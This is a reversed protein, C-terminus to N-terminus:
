GSDPGTPSSRSALVSLRADLAREALRLAEAETTAMGVPVGGSEDGRPPLTVIEVGRAVVEAKAGGDPDVAVVDVRDGVRLNSLADGDALRVTALVSGSPFGSMRDADVVRRDTIVEGRRMPGAVTRGVVGDVDHVGHEPAAQEPLKRRLVDDSALVAGSALDHAAVVVTRGPPESRLAGLALLVALGAFGAALPRRHRLVLRSIREV